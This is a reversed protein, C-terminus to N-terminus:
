HRKWGKRGYAVLASLAALALTWLAPNSAAMRLGFYYCHLGSVLLMEVALASAALPTWSRKMKLLGPLILGLACVIEFAGIAAWVVYPLAGVSAVQTAAMEYNSIRWAAGACTFLAVVVQVIWLLLNM